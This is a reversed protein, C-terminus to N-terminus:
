AYSVNIKFVYWKKSCISCRFQVEETVYVKLHNLVDGKKWYKKGCHDCEYLKNKCTKMHSLKDYITTFTLDCFTCTFSLNPFLEPHKNRLHHVFLSVSKFGTFEMKDIPCTFSTTHAMLIHLNCHEEKSFFKSECHGCKWAYEIETTEGISVYENSASSKGQLRVAGPNVAIPNLLSENVDHKILHRQLLEETIFKQNCTNCTPFVSLHAVISFLEHCKEHLQLARADKFKLCCENCFNKSKTTHYFIEETQSSNFPKRQEQFNNDHNKLHKMLLHYRLGSSSNSSHNCLSCRFIVRKEGTETQVVFKSRQIEQRLWTKDVEEGEENKDSKMERKVSVISSEDYIEEDYDNEDDNPEIEEEDDRIEDAAIEKESVISANDFESYTEFFYKQCEDDIAAQNEINLLCERIFSLYANIISFDILHTAIPLSENIQFLLDPAHHHLLHLLLSDANDCQSSCFFCIFFEETNAENKIFLKSNEIEMSLQVGFSSHKLFTHVSLENESAEFKGCRTCNLFDAILTEYAINESSNDNKNDNNEDDADDRVENVTIESQELKPSIFDLDEKDLQLTISNIKRIVLVKDLRCENQELYNEIQSIIM